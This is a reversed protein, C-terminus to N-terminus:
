IDVLQKLTECTDLKEIEFAGNVNVWITKPMSKSFTKSASFKENDTYYCEGDLMFCDIPIEKGCARGNCLYLKKM